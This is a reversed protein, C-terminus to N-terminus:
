YYRDHNRIPRSHKQAPKDTSKAPYEPRHQNQTRAMALASQIVSGHGELLPEGVALAAIRADWSVAERIHHRASTDDGAGAAAISSEYLLISLDRELHARPPWIHHHNLNNRIFNIATGFSKKANHFDGVEIQCRGLQIMVNVWEPYLDTFKEANIFYNIAEAKRNAGLLAWAGAVFGAPNTKDYEIAEDANKLAWDYQKRRLLEAAQEILEAAQVKRPNRLSSDISELVALQSELVGIMEDFRSSIQIGLVDVASTVADLGWGLTRLEDRIGGDQQWINRQAVVEFEHKLSPIIKGSYEPANLRALPGSGPPVPGHIEFSTVTTEYYCIIM